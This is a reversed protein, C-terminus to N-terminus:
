FAENGYLFVCDVCHLPPQYVPINEETFWNCKALLDACMDKLIGPPSVGFTLGSFVFCIDLFM